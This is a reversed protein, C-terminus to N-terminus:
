ISGAINPCQVSPSTQSNLCRTNDQCNSACYGNANAFNWFCGLMARCQQCGPNNYCPTSMIACQQLDVTGQPYRYDSPGICSASNGATIWRCNYSSPGPSTLCEGCSYRLSCDIPNGACLNQSGINVNTLDVCTPRNCSSSCYPQVLGLYNWKCGVTQSCTNCLSFQTCDVPINQCGGANTTCPPYQCMGFCFPVQPGVYNWQGGSGACAQCTTVGAYDQPCQAPSGTICIGQYVQMQSCTNQCSGTTTSSGQCYGNVCSQGSPCVGWGAVCISGRPASFLQNWTCGATACSGCDMKQQCAVAICVKWTLDCQYGATCQSNSTCTTAQCYGYVCVEGMYQCTTM